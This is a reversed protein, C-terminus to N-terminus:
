RPVASEISEPETIRAGTSVVTVGPGNQGHSGHISYHRDGRNVGIGDELRRFLTQFFRPDMGVIFCLLSAAGAVRFFHRLRIQAYMEPVLLKFEAKSNAISDMLKQDIISAAPTGLIIFQGTLLLLFVFFGRVFAGGVNAHERPQAASGPLACRGFEGISSALCCLILLNVWTWGTFVDRPQNSDNHYWAHFVTGALFFVCYVGFLVLLAVYDSFWGQRVGALLTQWITNGPQPQFPATAGNLDNSDPKQSPLKADSSTAM